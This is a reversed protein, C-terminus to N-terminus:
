QKIPKKYSPIKPKQLFDWVFDLDMNLHDKNYLLLFNPIATELPVAARSIAKFDNFKFLFSSTIIGVNEIIEVANHTTLNPNFGM